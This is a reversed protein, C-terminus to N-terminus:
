KTQKSNNIYKNERGYISGGYPDEGLYYRQAPPATWKESGIHSDIVNCKQYTTEDEPRPPIILPPSASRRRSKRELSASRIKGVLKRIGQGIASTVKQKSAVTDAPFHVSRGRSPELKTPPSCSGPRYIKENYNKSM